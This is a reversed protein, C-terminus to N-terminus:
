EEILQGLVSLLRDTQEPRGVSIRICNDLGSKNYYRVLIGQRELSQKLDAADRGEVRCLIFNAESPYPRLYPIASLATYLRDREAKLKEVVAVIQDTHRLSALGAVSAAVNVNYPQKFKWLTPMLWAPFIGYGLRLGAIGAAKSFTRLVILNDHALVWDARSPQNAFEVYAEDLVVVLPLALMRRLDDDGLWTGSPNNPSTLFLLKPTPSQPNPIPSQATVGSGWDGTGLGREIGEVDVSYDARRWVDIVEAGQLKADFSYMGFTPPTNLITDGPALFLRCLYDLLEDAGQGPLIHAAPVGVFGALAERLESQQPDPYIHYYPYEALAEAVAPLPGYPNENADLKVIQSAPIGLRKSLVEFPQIPTYEELGSLHPNLLTHPAFTDM